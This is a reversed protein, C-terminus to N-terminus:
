LGSQTTTRTRPPERFALVPRLRSEVPGVTAAPFVQSQQFVTGWVCLWTIGPCMKLLFFCILPNMQTDNVAGTSGFQGLVSM